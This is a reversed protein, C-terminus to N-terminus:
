AAETADRFNIALHVNAIVEKSDCPKYMVAFADHAQAMAEVRESREGTLYIVPPSGLNEMKALRQHVTFGNGAPM